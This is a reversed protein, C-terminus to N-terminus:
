GRISAVLVSGPVGAPDAARARASARDIGTSGRARRDRGHGATPPELGVLLRALTSKGCGSEGVVGLTRGGRARALRGCRALRRRDAAGGPVGERAREARLIVEGVDVAGELLRGATRPRARDAAAGRGRLREIPRPAASGSRAAAPSSRRIPRRGESRACRSQPARREAGPLSALLAATYPIRRGRSSTAPRPADRRDARRVDGRGPRRAARGRRPRADGLRGGDRTEAHLTEVLELIQQQITVDLATTPEDAILLRPSTSLAMAIMVRQLM